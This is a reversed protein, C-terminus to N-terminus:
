PQTRAPPPPEPETAPKTVRSVADRVPADGFGYAETLRTLRAMPEILTDELWTLYEHAAGDEPTIVATEPHDWNVVHDRRESARPADSFFLRFHHDRYTARTWTAATM